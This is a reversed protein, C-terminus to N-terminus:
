CPSLTALLPPNTATDLRGYALWWRGRRARLALFAGVVLMGAVFWQLCLLDVVAAPADDMNPVRDDQM